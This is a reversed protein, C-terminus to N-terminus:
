LLFVVTNSNVEVLRIHESHKRFFQTVIKKLFSNEKKLSSVSTRLKSNLRKQFLNRYKSSAMPIIQQYLSPNNFSFLLILFQTHTNKKKLAWNRNVKWIKVASCMQPWPSQVNSFHQRWYRSQHLSVQISLHLHVMQLRCHLAYVRLVEWIIFLHICIWISTLRTM